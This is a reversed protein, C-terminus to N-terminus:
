PKVLHGSLSVNCTFSNGDTSGFFSVTVIKGAEVYAVVPTAFFTEYNPYFYTQNIPFRYNVTAAFSSGSTYLQVGRLPSTSSCNGGAYELLFRYGIPVTYVDMANYAASSSQSVTVQVPNRGPNDVDQVKTQANLVGLGSLAFFLLACKM